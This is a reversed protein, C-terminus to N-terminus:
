GVYVTAGHDVQLIAIKALRARLESLEHPVIVSVPLLMLCEVDDTQVWMSVQSVM